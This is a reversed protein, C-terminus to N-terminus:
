KYCVLGSFNPNQTQIEMTAWVKKLPNIITVAVLNMKRAWDDDNPCHKYPFIAM